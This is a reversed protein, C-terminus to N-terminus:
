PAAELSDVLRRVDEVRYLRRTCHPVAVHCLTGAKAMRRVTSKSIGLLEGADTEDILFPERTNVQGATRQVM